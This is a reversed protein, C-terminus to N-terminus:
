SSYEYRHADLYGQLFFAAAIKDVRVEKKRRSLTSTNLATWAAATSLREDWIVLPCSVCPQLKAIFADVRETQFGLSGNMNKPYGVVIKDVDFHTCLWPIRELGKPTHPIVELPSALIGQPDSLSIGLRVEGWDIGMVRM